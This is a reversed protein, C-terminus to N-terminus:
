QLEGVISKLVRLALRAQEDNLEDVFLILERKVDSLGDSVTPQEIEDDDILYSPPVNFLAAMAKVKSTPIAEVRGCEWKSVANKKVGLKEGLETQTLGMSERLSKIKDCIRM